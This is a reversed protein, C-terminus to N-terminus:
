FPLDETDQRYVRGIGYKEFVEGWGPDPNNFPERDKYNVYWEYAIYALDKFTLVHDIRDYRTKCVVADGDVYLNAEGSKSFGKVIYSISGDIALDTQVSIGEELCIKIINELLLRM